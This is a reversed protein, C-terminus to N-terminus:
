WPFRIQGSKDIRPDRTEESAMPAPAPAGTFGDVMPAETDPAMRNAPHQVLTELKKPYFVPGVWGCSPCPGIVEFEGPGEPTFPNTRGVM